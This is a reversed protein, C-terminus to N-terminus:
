WRYISIRNHPINNSYYNFKCFINIGSWLFPRIFMKDPLLTLFTGIFKIYGKVLRSSIRALYTSFNMVRTFDAMFIPITWSALSSVINRNPLLFIYTNLVSSNVFPWSYILISVRRCAEHHLFHLPLQWQSIIFLVKIYYKWFFRKRCKKQLYPINELLNM